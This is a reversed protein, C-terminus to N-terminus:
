IKVDQRRPTRLSRLPGPATWRLLLTRRTTVHTWTDSVRAGHRAFVCLATARYSKAKCMCESTTPAKSMRHVSEKKRKADTEIETGSTLWDLTCGGVTRM